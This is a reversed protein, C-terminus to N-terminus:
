EADDSGADDYERDEYEADEPADEGEADQEDAASYNITGDDNEISKFATGDINAKGALILCFGFIVGRRPKGAINAQPIPRCVEIGLANSEKIEIGLPPHLCEDMGPKNAFFASAKLALVKLQKQFECVQFHCAKMANKARCLCSDKGQTATQFGKFAAAENGSIQKQGAPGNCRDIRLAAVRRIADEAMEKTYEIKATAAKGVAAIYAAKHERHYETCPHWGPTDKDQPRPTDGQTEGCTQLRRRRQRRLCQRM